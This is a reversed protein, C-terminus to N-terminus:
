AGRPVGQVVSSRPIGVSIPTTPRFRTDREIAPHRVDGQRRRQMPLLQYRGEGLSQEAARHLGDAGRAATGSTTSAAHRATWSAPELVGVAGSMDDIHHPRPAHRRPQVGQDAPPLIATAPLYAAMDASGRATSPPAPPPRSATCIRYSHSILERSAPPPTSCIPHDVPGSPSRSSTQQRRGLVLQCVFHRCQQNAPGADGPSGRRERPHLRAPGDALPVRPRPRWTSTPSTQPAEAIAFMTARDAIDAEAFTFSPYQRLQALRAQKLRPDYYSNLNDVGVVSDGRELLRLSTHFGIFGAAGTVLVSM